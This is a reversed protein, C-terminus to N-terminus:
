GGTVADIDERRAKAEDEHAERLAKADDIPQNIAENLSTPNAPTAPTAAQPDPPVDQEPVKPKTCATVVLSACLTATFVPAVKHLRVKSM